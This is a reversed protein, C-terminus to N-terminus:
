ATSVYPCYDGGCSRARCVGHHLVAGQAGAREGPDVPQRATIALGRDYKFEVVDKSIENAWSNTPSFIIIVLLTSILSSRM